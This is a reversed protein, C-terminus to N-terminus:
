CSGTAPPPMCASRARTTAAARRRARCASRHPGARAARNSAAAAKPETPVARAPRSHSWDTVSAPRSRRPIATSAAAASHIRRRHRAGSRARARRATAGAISAPSAAVACSAELSSASGAAAQPRPLQAPRRSRARDDPGTSAGRDCRRRAGRRALGARPSLRRPAQCITSASSRPAASSPCLAALM